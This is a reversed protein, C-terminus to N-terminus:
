QRCDSKQRDGPLGYSCLGRLGFRRGRFHLLELLPELQQLFRYILQLPLDADDLLRPRRGRACRDALTNRSRSYCCCRALLRRSRRSRVRRGPARELNVAEGHEIHAELELLVVRVPEISDPWSLQRSELILEGRITVGVKADPLRTQADLVVCRGFITLQLRDELEFKEARTYVGPLRGKAQPVGVTFQPRDADTLVPRNEPICIGIRVRKLVPSWVPQDPKAVHLKTPHRDFSFVGHRKRKLSRTSACVKASVLVADLQHADLWFQCPGIQRTVHPEVSLPSM